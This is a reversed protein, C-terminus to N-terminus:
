WSASSSAARMEDPRPLAPCRTRTRVTWSRRRERGGTRPPGDADVQRSRHQASRGFAASSCADRVDREDAAVSLHMREVLRRKVDDDAPEARHEERIEPRREHVDSRCDTGTTPQHDDRPAREVAVLPEHGDAGRQGSSTIKRLWRRACRSRETESVRLLSARPEAGGAEVIDLQGFRAGVAEDACVGIVGEVEHAVVPPTIPSVSDKSSDERAAASSVSWSVMAACSVGSPTVNPEDAHTM